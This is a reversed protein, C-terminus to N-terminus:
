KGDFFGGDMLEKLVNGRWTIRDGYRNKIRRLVDLVEDPIQWAFEVVLPKQSDRLYKTLQNSLKVLLKDNFAQGKETLQRAAWKLHGWAKSEINLRPTEFDVGRTQNRTFGGDGYEAELSKERSNEFQKWIPTKGAAMLVILGGAGVGAVASAIAPSLAIAGAPAVALAGDVTMVYAFLSPLPRSALATAARPAVTLARGGLYVGWLNGAVQDRYDQESLDGKWYHSAADYQQKLGATLIFTGMEWAAQAGTIQGTRLADGLESYARPLYGGNAVYLLGDAAMLVSQEVIKFPATITAKAAGSVNEWSLANWLFEGGDSWNLATIGSFATIRGEYEVRSYYKGPNAEVDAPVRAWVTLIQDADNRPGQGTDSGGGGDQRLLNPGAGMEPWASDDWASPSLASAPAIASDFRTHIAQGEYGWSAFGGDYFGSDLAHGGSSSRTLPNAAGSGYQGSRTLPTKPVRWNNGQQVSRTDSEGFSGWFKQEFAADTSQYDVTGEGSVSPTWTRTRFSRFHDNSNRAFERQSNWDGFTRTAQEYDEAAADGGSEIQHTFLGEAALLNGESDYETFVSGSRETESWVLGAGALPTLKGAFIGPDRGTRSELVVPLTRYNGVRLENALGNVYSDQVQEDYFHEGETGLWVLEGFKGGIRHELRDGGSPTGEVITTDTTNWVPVRQWTDTHESFGGGVLPTSREVRRKLQGAQLGSGVSTTTETLKGTTRFNYDVEWGPTIIQEDPQGNSYTKTIIDGFNELNETVTTLDNVELGLQGAAISLTTTDSGGGARAVVERSRIESPNNWKYKLDKTTTREGNGTRHLGDALFEDTWIVEDNTTITRPADSPVLSLMGSRSIETPSGDLGSGGTAALNWIESQQQGVIRFTETREDESTGSGSEKTQAEDGVNVLYSPPGGPPSGSGGGSGGGDDEEQELDRVANQFDSTWSSSDSLQSSLPSLDRFKYQLTRDMGGSLQLLGGLTSGGASGTQSAPAASVKEDLDYLRFSLGSGSGSQSWSGDSQSDGERLGRSLEGGAASSQSGSGLATRSFDYSDLAKLFRHNGSAQGTREFAASFFKDQTNTQDLDYVTSSSSGRTGSLSVEGEPARLVTGSHQGFTGQPADGQGPPTFGLTLDYRLGDNGRGAYNNQLGRHAWSFAGSGSQDADALTYPDADAGQAATWNETRTVKPAHGWYSLADSSYSSKGSFVTRDDRRGDRSVSTGGGPTFTAVSNFRAIQDLTTDSESENKWATWYFNLQRNEDGVPATHPRLPAASSGSAVLAAPTHGGLYGSAGALLSSAAGPTAGGRQTAYAGRSDVSLTSKTKLKSVPLEGRSLIVGSLIDDADNTTPLDELLLMTSPVVLTVDGGEGTSSYTLRNNALREPSQYDYELSQEATFRSGQTDSNDVGSSGLNIERKGDYATNIGTVMNRFGNANLRSHSTLAGGARAVFSTSSTSGSPPNSLQEFGFVEGADAPALDQRSSYNLEARPNSLLTYTLSDNRALSSQRRGSSLWRSSNEVYGYLQNRTQLLDATLTGLGRTGFGSGDASLSGSLHSLTTV